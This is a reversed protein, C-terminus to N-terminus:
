AQQSLPHSLQLLVAHPFGHFKGFSQEVYKCSVTFMIVDSSYIGAVVLIATQYKRCVIRFPACWAIMGISIISERQNASSLTLPFM